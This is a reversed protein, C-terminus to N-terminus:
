GTSTPSPAPSPLEGVGGGGVGGGGPWYGRGGPPEVGIRGHPGYGGFAGGPVVMVHRGVPGRERHGDGDLLFGIGIGAGLAVLLGVGGVAALHRRRAPNVWPERYVPVFPSTPPPGAPPPPLPLADEVPVATAASTPQDPPPTSM